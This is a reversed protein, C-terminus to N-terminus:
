RWCEVDPLLEPGCLRRKKQSIYLYTPCLARACWHSRLIESTLRWMRSHGPRRRSEIHLYKCFKKKAKCKGAVLTFFVRVRKLTSDIHSTETGNRPKTVFSVSQPKERESPSNQDSNWSDQSFMCSSGPLLEYVYCLCHACLSVIVKIWDLHIFYFWLDQIM